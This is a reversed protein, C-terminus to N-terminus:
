LLRKPSLALFSTTRASSAEQAAVGFVYGYEKQEPRHASPSQPVIATAEFPEHPSASSAFRETPQLGRSAGPTLWQRPEWARDSTRRCSERESEQNRGRRTRRAGRICTCRLRQEVFGPPEHRGSPMRLCTRLEDFAVLEIRASSSQEVNRDAMGRFAFDRGGDGVVPTGELLSQAVLTPISLADSTLRNCREFLVQRVHRDHHRGVRSGGCLWLLSATHQRRRRSLVISQIQEVLADAQSSAVGTAFHLSSSIAGTM